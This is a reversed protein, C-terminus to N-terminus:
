SCASSIEMFIPLNEMMCPLSEGGFEPLNWAKGRSDHAFSNSSADCHALPYNTGREVTWDDAPDSKEEGKSSFM